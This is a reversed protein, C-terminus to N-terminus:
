LRKGSYFNYDSANHAQLAIGIRGIKQVRCAFSFDHDLPAASFIIFQVDMHRQIGGVIQKRELSM